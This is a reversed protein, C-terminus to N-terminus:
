AVAQYIGALKQFMRDQSFHTRAARVANASLEQYDRMGQEVAELFGQSTPEFIVGCRHQEIFYSFPAVSSILAPLGCCLGEILSNPCEKGGDQTTYPIALFQCQRFVEVMNPVATNTLTVNTLQHEQLYHQTPQLSTYGSRWPRYLLRYQIDPNDKAAQLLLNVGRGEMEEVSRPATAFLVTPKRPLNESKGVPSFKTLDIGPFMLEVKDKEVGWDLLKRRYTDTQVIIKRCREFFEFNEEGKESVISLIIPRRKVTKYFIWPCPEGYVHNVDAYSEVLPILLRLFPHFSPHFGVYRERLSFRFQYHPNVGFLWSPSFHRALQFVEKSIAEIEPELCSNNWYIIRVLLEVVLM